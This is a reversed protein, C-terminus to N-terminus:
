QRDMYTQFVSDMQMQCRMEYFIDTGCHPCQIVEPTSAIIVPNGLKRTCNLKKVKGGGKHEQGNGDDRSNGKSGGEYGHGGGDGKFNDGDKIGGKYCLPSRYRERRDNILPEPIAEKRASHWPTPDDTWHEKNRVGPKDIDSKSQTVAFDYPDGVKGGAKCYNGDGSGGAQTNYRLRYPGYPKPQSYPM